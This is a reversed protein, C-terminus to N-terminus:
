RPRVRGRREIIACVPRRATAWQNLHLGYKAEFKTRFELHGPAMPGTGVWDAFNWQAPDCEGRCAEPTHHRARPSM